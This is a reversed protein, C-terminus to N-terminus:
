STLSLKWEADGAMERPMGMQRVLNGASQARQMQEPNQATPKGSLMDVLSMEKPDSLVLSDVAFRYIRLVGDEASVGPRPSGTWAVLDNCRVRWINPGDMPEDPQENSEVYQKLGELTPNRVETGHLAFWAPLDTVRNTLIVQDGDKMTWLDALQLEAGRISSGWRFWFFMDGARCSLRETTDAYVLRKIDKM